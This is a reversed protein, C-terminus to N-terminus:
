NVGFRCHCKPCHVTYEPGDEDAVIMAHDICYQAPKPHGHVPIYIKKEFDYEDIDRGCAWTTAKEKCNEFACQNTFKFEPEPDAM